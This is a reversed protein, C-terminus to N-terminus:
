IRMHSRDTLLVRMFNRGYRIIESSQGLQFPLVFLVNIQHLTDEGAAPVLPFRRESLDTEEQAFEDIQHISIFIYFLIDCCSGIAWVFFRILFVRKKCFVAPM